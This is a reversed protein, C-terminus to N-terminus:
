WRKWGAFNTQTVSTVVLIRSPFFLSLISVQNTERKTLEDSFIFESHIDAFKYGSPGRKERRRLMVYLEAM